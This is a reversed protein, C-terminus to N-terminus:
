RKSSSSCLYTRRFLLSPLHEFDITTLLMTNYIIWPSSVFRIDFYFSLPHIQITCDIWIPIGNVKSKTFRSIDFCGLAEQFFDQSKWMNGSRTYYCYIFIWGIWYWNLLQFVFFLYWFAGSHSLYYILVIDHLMIM